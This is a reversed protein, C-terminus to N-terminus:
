PLSQISVVEKLLTFANPLHPYEYNLFIAKYSCQM